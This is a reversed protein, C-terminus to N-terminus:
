PDSVLAGRCNASATCPWGCRSNGRGSGCECDTSRLPGRLGFVPKRIRFETLTPTGCTTGLGRMARFTIRHRAIAELDTTALGALPITDYGIERFEQPLALIGARLTGQTTAIQVQASTTNLMSRLLKATALGVLSIMVLSVLVEILTFGRRTLM